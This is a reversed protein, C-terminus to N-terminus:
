VIGFFSLVLSIGIIGFLVTTPKVKKGFLVYAIVFFLVPFFAPMIQDIYNQLPEVFDGTGITLPLSFWIQSVIMGGIAMLGIISAAESVFTVLNAMSKDSFFKTGVELGQKLFTYRIIFHPVNIILFFLIPGLWSGQQSFSIAIGAAIVKLTGWFFSDGIGALPGMLSAKVAGISNEDFNPDKANEEEMASSIGVLLTSIHPTVGMFELHRALAKARDEETDYLRRIAPCMMYAFTLNQQREYNWASDLTCSRTFMQMIDKNTFKSNTTM